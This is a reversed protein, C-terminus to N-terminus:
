LKYLKSDGTNKRFAKINLYDILKETNTFATKSIYIKSGNYRILVGDYSYGGNHVGAIEWSEINKVSITAKRFFSKRIELTNDSENVKIGMFLAKIFLIFVFSFLVALGVACAVDILYGKQSTDISYIATYAILIYVGLITIASVIFLIREFTHIQVKFCHNNTDKHM